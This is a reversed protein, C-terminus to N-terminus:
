YELGNKVLRYLSYHIALKQTKKLFNKNFKEGHGMRGRGDNTFACYYGEIIYKSNEFTGINKAKPYIAYWFLQKTDKMIQGDGVAKTVALMLMSWDKHFEFGIKYGILERQKSGEPILYDTLLRNMQKITAM